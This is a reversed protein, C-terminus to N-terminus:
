FRGGLVVGVQDGTAIPALAVRREAARPFMIYVVIGASATVLGAAGVVTAITARSRAQDGLALGQDDCVRAADCHALADNWKSRALAGAIVSAVVGTGGGVVLGIALARHGRAPAATGAPPGLVPRVAAADAPGTPETKVLKAQARACPELEDIFAQVKDRNRADPFNRAYTRYFGIAEVCDGKLRFAQAINFLSAADHRLEYAQKFKAIARDWERLDYLRRGELYAAEAPELPSPDAAARAAVLLALSITLLPSRM